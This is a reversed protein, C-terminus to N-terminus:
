TLVMDAVSNLPPSGITATFTGNSYSPSSVWGLYSDPALVFQSSNIDYPIFIMDPNSEIDDYWIKTLIGVWKIPTQDTILFYFYSQFFGYIGHENSYSPLNTKFAQTIVPATLSAVNIAVFVIDSPSLQAWFGILLINTQLYLEHKTGIVYSGFTAQYNFKNMSIQDGNTLNLVFLFCANEGSPIYPCWNNFSHSTGSVVMKASNSGPCVGGCTANYTVRWMMATQSMRVINEPITQFGTIMVLYDDDNLYASQLCSTTSPAIRQKWLLAALYDTTTADLVLWAARAGNQGSVLVKSSDPSFSSRLWTGQPDFSYKLSGDLANLIRVTNANDIFSLYNEDPSVDM